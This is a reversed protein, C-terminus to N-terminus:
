YNWDDNGIGGGIGGERNGGLGQSELWDLYAQNADPGAQQPGLPTTNTETDPVDGESGDPIFPFAQNDGGERNKWADWIKNFDIVGGSGGSGKTLAALIGAGLAGGGLINGLVGGDKMEPATPVAPLTDKGINSAGINSLAAGAARANAGLNSPRRGGTFTTVHPQIWSPAQVGVDQTNAIQDGTVAQQARFGPLAAQLKTRDLASQYLRNSLDGSALATNNQASVGAARGEAARGLVTGIDAIPNSQSQGQKALLQNAIQTLIDNEDAM